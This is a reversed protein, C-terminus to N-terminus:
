KRHLIQHKLLVIESYSASLFLPCIHMVLSGMVIQHTFTEIHIHRLHKVCIQHIHVELALRFWSLIREFVCGRCGGDCAWVEKRRLTVVILRGGLQLSELATTLTFRM